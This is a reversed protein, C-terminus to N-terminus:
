FVSLSCSDCALEPCGTPGAATLFAASGVAPCSLRSSLPACLGAPGGGEADGAEGAEAGASRDSPQGPGTHVPITWSDSPSPSWLSSASFPSWPHSVAPRPGAHHRLCALTPHQHPAGPASGDLLGEQLLSMNPYWAPHPTCPLMHCARCALPCPARRVACGPWSSLVLPPVPGSPRRPNGCGLLLFLSPERRPPPPSLVM